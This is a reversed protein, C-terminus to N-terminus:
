AKVGGQRSRARRINADLKETIETVSLNRLTGTSWNFSEAYSLGKRLSDVSFDDGIAGRFEAGSVMLRLVANIGRATTLVHGPSCWARPWTESAIRIINLAVEGRKPLPLAALPSNKGIVSKLTSWLGTANIGEPRHRREYPRRLTETLLIMGFLPSNPDSNLQLILEYAMRETDSRWDGLKHRQALDLRSDIAKRRQQQRFIRLREEYSLGITAVTPWTWRAMEEPTLIECAALRHQGDDISLYCDDGEPILLGREEDFRWGGRLDGLIDDLMVTDPQTMAVAIDTAHREDYQRNVGDSHDGFRDVRSIALLLPAPMPFLYASKDRQGIVMASIPETARPLPTQTTQAM